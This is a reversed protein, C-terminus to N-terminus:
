FIKDFIFDDLERTTWEKIEKLSIEKNAYAEAIIDVYHAFSMRIDDADMYSYFCSWTITEYEEDTPNELFSDVSNYGILLMGTRYPSSSCPDKVSKQKLEKYFKLM